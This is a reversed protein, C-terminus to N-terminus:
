CGRGVSPLAHSLSSVGISCLSKGHMVVGYFFTELELIVHINCVFVRSVLHPSGLLLGDISISESAWAM